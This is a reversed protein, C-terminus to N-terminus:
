RKRKPHWTVWWDPDPVEGPDVPACVLRYRRPHVASRVKRVTLVHYAARGAVTKALDGEYPRDHDDFPHWDIM